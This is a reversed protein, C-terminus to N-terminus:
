KQYYKWLEEMGACKTTVIPVGLIIAESVVTSLGETISSCVFLDAQKIYPYPNSKFGLLKIKEVLNHRKIYDNLKNYHTGEGIIIVNIKYGENILKNGIRLLRDYAKQANLRGVSMITFIDKPKIFDNKKNSLEIIKNKNIVNHKVIVKNKDFNFKKVFQEKVINSVCVIKDFKKYTNIEDNKNKFVKVITDYIAKLLM